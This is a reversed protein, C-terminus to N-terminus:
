ETLISQGGEMHWISNEQEGGYLRVKKIARNERPKGGQQKTSDM